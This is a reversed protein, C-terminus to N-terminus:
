KYIELWELILKVIEDRKEWHLFHGAHDFGIKRLGLPFDSDKLLHEFLNKHFCGDNLGYFIQTPVNVQSDLMGLISERGSETFLDNLNRYYALASSLIGPNQFSAKIEAIHDQNPQFNPSWDKWLFDILAFNDARITLEALMPIQFLLVYWSHLTQQPAWIFSDQHAKLLPVGLGTISKVSNPFYMGTAYSIVAGWNHGVLHVSNWNRDRMWGQVDLVLDYIHLKPSRTITNPEYGRMVPAVCHFGKKAIPEMIPLFTKNNDPFGHLFLVPEGSGIEITSFVTSGNRIESTYM